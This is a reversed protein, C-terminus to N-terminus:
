PKVAETAPSPRPYQLVREPSAKSAQSKQVAELYKERQLTILAQVDRKLGDVQGLESKLAQVEKSLDQVARSQAQLGSGVTQVQRMMGDSKSAVQKATELPVKQTMSETQKLAADIRGEIAAQTKTLESQKQSLDSLSSGLKELSELGVQMEAVRQAASNLATDLQHVRSIMRVGMILFFMMCLVMFGATIALLLRAKKHGADTLDRFHQTANKLDQGSQMAAEASRSALEASELVTQALLKYQAYAKEDVSRTPTSPQQPRSPPPSANPPQIASPEPSGNSETAQSPDASTLDPAATAEVRQPDQEPTDSM